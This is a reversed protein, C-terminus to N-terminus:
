SASVMKAVKLITNNDILRHGKSLVHLSAQPVYKMFQHANRLPIITDYKGMFIEVAIAHQAAGSQILQFNPIFDSLSVWRKYLLLRSRKDHVHNMVFRYKKEPLMGAAHIWKIFRLYVTHKAFSKFLGIGAGTRTLLEYAKNPVLGDSALLICRRVLQPYYQLLCLCLRGGISYGLVDFSSAGYQHMMHRIFQMLEDPSMKSQRWHTKHHFPLDIAIIRYENQLAPVFSEFLSCNNGYGHFCFLLKEGVGGELYHLTNNGITYFNSVL